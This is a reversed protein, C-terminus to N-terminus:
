LEISMKRMAKLPSPGPLSARRASPPTDPRSLSEACKMLLGSISPADPSLFLRCKVFFCELLVDEEASKLPILLVDTLDGPPDGAAFRALALSPAVGSTATQSAVRLARAFDEPIPWPHHALARLVHLALREDRALVVNKLTEWYQPEGAGHRLLIIIATSAFDVDGGAAVGELRKMARRTLGRMGLLGTLSFSVEDEDGSSLGTGLADYIRGVLTAVEGISALSARRLEVDPDITSSLLRWIGKSALRVAEALETLDDSM